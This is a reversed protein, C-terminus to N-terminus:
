PSWCKKTRCSFSQLAPTQSPQKIQKGGSITIKVM